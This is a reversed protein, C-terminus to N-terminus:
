YRAYRFDTPQVPILLVIAAILAAYILVFVLTAAWAPLWRSLLGYVPM